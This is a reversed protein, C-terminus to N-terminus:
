PPAPHRRCGRRADTGQAGSVASEVDGHLCHEASRHRPVDLVVVVGGRNKSVVPRVNGVEAVEDLCHELFDLGDVDHRGTEGALVDAAGAEARADGGTGPRTQPQMDGAGDM